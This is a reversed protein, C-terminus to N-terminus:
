SGLGERGAVVGSNVFRHKGCFAVDVEWAAGRKVSAVKCPLCICVPGKDPHDCHVSLQLREGVRVQQDVTFRAGDRGIARLQGGVKIARGRAVPISVTVATELPIRFDSGRESLAQRAVNM